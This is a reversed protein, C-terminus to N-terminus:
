IHILSLNSAAGSLRQQAEFALFGAVGLAPEPVDKSLPAENLARRIAPSLRYAKQVNAIRLQDAPADM